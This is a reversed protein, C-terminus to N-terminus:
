TRRPDRALEGLVFELRQAQHVPEVQLEVGIHQPDGDGVADQRGILHAHQGTDGPDVVLAIAVEGRTLVDLVVPGPELLDGVNEILEGRDLHVGDLGAAVADAIDGGVLKGTDCGVFDVVGTDIGLDDSLPGRQVRLEREQRALELNGDRTRGVIAGGHLDVVDPEPHDPVVGTLRSELDDHPPPWPRVGIIPWTM